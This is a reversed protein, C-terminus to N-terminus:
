PLVSFPTTVVVVEDPDPNWRASTAAYAFSSLGQGWLFGSVGTLIAGSVTAFPLESFANSIGKGDAVHDKLAKAVFVASIFTITGFLCQFGGLTAAKQPSGNDRTLFLAPKTVNQANAFGACLLIALFVRKMLFSREVYVVLFSGNIEVQYKESIEYSGIWTNERQKCEYEQQSHKSQLWARKKTPPQEKSRHGM